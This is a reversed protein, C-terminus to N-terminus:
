RESVNPWLTPGVAPGPVPPALAGSRARIALCRSLPVKQRVLIDVPAYFARTPEMALITSQGLALWALSQKLTARAM